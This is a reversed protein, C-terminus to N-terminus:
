GTGAACCDDPTQVNQTPEQRLRGARPAPQCGVSRNNIPARRGAAVTAGSEEEGAVFPWNHRELRAAPRNGVARRYMRGWLVPLIFLSRGAACYANSTVCSDYRRVLVWPSLLRSGPRVLHALSADRSVTHVIDREQKATRRM